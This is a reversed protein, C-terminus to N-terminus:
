VRVKEEGQHFSCFIDDIYHLYLAPKVPANQLLKNELYGMLLNTYSPAVKTDMVTGGVQLYHEGQFPFNNLHLVAKLLKMFSIFPHEKNEKVLTRYVANLGEHNPM